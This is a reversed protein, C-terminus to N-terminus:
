RAKYCQFYENFYNWIDMYESYSNAVINAVDNIVESYDAIFIGCDTASNVRNCFIAIAKRVHGSM